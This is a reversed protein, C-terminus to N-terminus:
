MLDELFGALSETSDVPDLDVISINWEALLTSQIANSGFTTLFASHSRSAERRMQKRMKYLKYLMYRINIDSLSYGIFLLTKGLIDARMKIDIPSEFELRDFYSTETLVLSGDDDFTGHLKVIQTSTDVPAAAIDDLNAIAHCAAGKLRFAREIIRDYNTTYILPLKMEVLATHARSNRIQDDSPNFQRDMESRLPGISGKKAVYYQALQLDNGNLKFVEPEYDLEEAIFAILTSWDPLGLPKSLGSGVFPILRGDQRLGKLTNIADLDSIM